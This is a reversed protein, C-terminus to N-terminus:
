FDDFNSTHIRLKRKIKMIAKTEIQRVRERTLDYKKGIEDLTHSRGGSLGYRLCLVEWERPLLVSKARGLFESIAIGEVIKDASPSKSDPIFDGLLSDEEEGIPTSLSVTDETALLIFQVDEEKWGLYGALEEMTPERGFEASFRSSAKKSKQKQEHTAVPVRVVRSTDAIARSIGQKIWWTAYTSFKFGLTYDFKEVAKMLGENGDQIADMFQYSNTSYRKAISVVLRLNSEILKKKALSSERLNGEHILRALEKEEEKSLLPYQGIEKLYAKVSDTYISDAEIPEDNAFDEEIRISLSNCEEYFNTIQEADIDENEAVELIQSTKIVGKTKGLDLLRNLGKAYVNM